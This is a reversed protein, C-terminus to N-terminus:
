FFNCAEAIENIQYRSLNSLISLKWCSIYIKKITKVDFVLLIFNVSGIVEESSRLKRHCIEMCNTYVYSLKNICQVGLTEDNCM